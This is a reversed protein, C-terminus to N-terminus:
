AGPPPSVTSTTILETGPPMTTAVPGSAPSTAEPARSPADVGPEGKVTECDPDVIGTPAVVDQREAETPTFILGVLESALAAPNTSTGNWRSVRLVRDGDLTTVSGYEDVFALTAGATGPLTVSTVVPLSTSWRANDALTGWLDYTGGSSSSLDYGEPACEGDADPNEYSWTQYDATNETPTETPIVTLGGPGPSAFVWRGSADKSLGALWETLVTDDVGATTVLVRETDTMDWTIATAARKSIIRAHRGLITTETGGTGSQLRRSDQVSAVIFRVPAGPTADATVALDAASEGSGKRATRSGRGILDFESPVRLSLGLLGGDANEEYNSTWGTPSGSSSGTSSGTAAGAALGTQDSAAQDRDTSVDQTGPDRSIVVLGAAVAAATAISATAMRRRHRVATRRRADERVLLSGGIADPADVDDARHRLHSRLRAELDLDDNM